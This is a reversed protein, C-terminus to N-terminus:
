YLKMDVDQKQVASAVFLPLTHLKMSSAVCNGPWTVIQTNFDNAISNYLRRAAAIEREQYDAAEMLEKVTKTSQIEPYRELTVLLRSFASEVQNAADIANTNDIHMSRMKTVDTLLDKEFQMSSKTADVLKVLTDRRQALQVDIGSTAENAKMQAQNFFNKKKWYIITPAIFLTIVGLLIWFVIIWAAKQGGSANAKVPQNQVNPNFGEPANTNNRTDILM